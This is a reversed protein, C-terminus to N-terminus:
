SLSFLNPENEILDQVLYAPSLNDIGFAGASIQESLRSHYFIDMAKDLTLNKTAALLAIIAEEQNRRCERRLVGPAIM